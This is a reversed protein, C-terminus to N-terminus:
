EDDRSEGTKIQVFIRLQNLATKAAREYEPLMELISTKFQDPTFQEHEEVLKRVRNAIAQWEALRLRCERHAKDVHEYRSPKEHDQM